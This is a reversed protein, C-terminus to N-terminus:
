PFFVTHTATWGINTSVVFPIGAKDAAKGLAIRAPANDVASILIDADSILRVCEDDRKLDAQFGELLSHKTHKRMCELAVEVKPRGIDAYTAFEQGVINVSDYCDWDCVRILGVGAKALMLASASGIGGLGAVAVRANRLRLQGEVGWLGLQRETDCLYEEYLDNSNQLSM